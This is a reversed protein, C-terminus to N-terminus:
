PQKSQFGEIFSSVITKAINKEEIAWEGKQLKELSSYLYLFLVIAEFLFILATILTAKIETYHFAKELYFCICYSLHYHFIGISILGVFLIILFCIPVTLIKKPSLIHSVLSGILTSQLM